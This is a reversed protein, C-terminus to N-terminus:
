FMSVFVVLLVGFFVIVLGVILVVDVGEDVVVVGDYLGYFWYCVFNFCIFLGFMLMGSVCVLYMVGCDVSIYVDCVVILVVMCCVDSFYFM